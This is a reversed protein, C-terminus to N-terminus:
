EPYDKLVAYVRLDIKASSVHRGGERHKWWATKNDKEEAKFVTNVHPGYDLVGSFETRAVYNFVGMDGAVEDNVRKTEWGYIWDIHDDFYMKVERQCFRMVTDRDGGILGANLLPLNANDRMFKQL